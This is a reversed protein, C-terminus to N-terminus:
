GRLVGKEIPPRHAAIVSIANAWKEWPFASFVTPVFDSIDSRVRTQRESTQADALSTVALSTMTIVDSSAAAVIYNGSQNFWGRAVDLGLFRFISSQHKVCHLRKQYRM